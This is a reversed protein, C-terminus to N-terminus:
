AIRIRRVLQQNAEWYTRKNKISADEPPPQVRGDEDTARSVVTHEGPVAGTWDFNWLSWTFKGDSGRVPKKEMTASRWPGDDIRVEVKTLPTGDSWAAGTIRHVGNGLRVVRACISKVNVNCVSTERWNTDEGDRQEGRITVYERAMWKGMFRRDLVDIRNLWKVWSIGFWGPVVLRLPAGHKEDLPEGNMEWALLVEDQLAHDISLSRAFHQPYDKERIKEIKEDAGYFVVEQSRKGLGCDRLLPGLPVGTWKVNGIAGMFGPSSGNGGCELTAYVSKQRRKKLDALTVVRPTKVFGTIEVRGESSVSKPRGYHSVEYLDKTDTVWSKLNQWYLMKGVPQVDLFPVLQESPAPELGFARLPRSALTFAVLAVSGRLLDRRSLDRPTM